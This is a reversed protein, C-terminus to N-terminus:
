AGEDDGSLNTTGTDFLDEKSGDGSAAREEASPETLERPPKQFSRVFVVGRAPVAFAIARGQAPFM